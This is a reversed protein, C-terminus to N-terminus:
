ADVTDRRRPFLRRALPPPEFPRWEGDRQALRDAVVVVVAPNVGLGIHSGDVEVNEVRPGPQEMAMQWPVVADSKSYIATVPVPPTSVGRVAELRRFPSGMTIVERVQHPSHRALGRAYVGGMSWGILSVPRGDAQYLKRVLTSMGELLAADPGENRGLGWGHVSHGLQALVRRLPATSRDDGYMGPLVLVPHGDGRPLLSFWPLSAGFAGLEWVARQESLLRSALTREM